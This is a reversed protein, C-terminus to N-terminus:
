FPCRDTEPFGDCTFQAFNRLLKQYDREPSGDSDAMDRLVYFYFNQFKDFDHSFCACAMRIDIQGGCAEGIIDTYYDAIIRIRSYQKTDKRVADRIAKLHEDPTCTGNAECKHFNTEQAELDPRSWFADENVIADGIPDTSTKKQSVRRELNLMQVEPQVANTSNASVNAANLYLQTISQEQKYADKPPKTDIGLSQLAYIKSRKRVEYHVVEISFPGSNSGDSHGLKHRAVRLEFRVWLNDGAGPLAESKFLIQIAIGQTADASEPIPTPNLEFLPEGYGHITVQSTWSKVLNTLQSAFDITLSPEQKQPATPVCTEAHLLPIGDHALNLLLAAIIVITRRM